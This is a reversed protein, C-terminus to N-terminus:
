PAAAAAPAAQVHPLFPASAAMPDDVLLYEPWESAQDPETPDPSVAEAVAGTSDAVDDGFTFRLTFQGGALNLAIERLRETRFREEDAPSLGAQFRMRGDLTYMSIEGAKLSLTHRDFYVPANPAFRILPLPRDGLRAVNFPSNAGQYVHRATRSVSYIANCAMQSGIAPFRQRLMKYAMHHLAVRNWCRTSQVMPSLANCAEAFLRQLAALRAHQAPDAKLTLTVVSKM